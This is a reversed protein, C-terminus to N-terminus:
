FPTLLFKNINEVYIKNVINKSKDTSYVSVSNGNNWQVHTEGYLNTRYMKKSLWIDGIVKKEIYVNKKIESEFSVRYASSSSVSVIERDIMNLNFYFNFFVLAFIFFM